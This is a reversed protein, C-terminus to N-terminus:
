EPRRFTWKFYHSNNNNDFRSRHSSSLDTVVEDDPFEFPEIPPDSDSTAPASSTTTLLLRPLGPDTTTSTAPVDPDSTLLAPQTFPTSTIDPVPNTGSGGEPSTLINNGVPGSTLGSSSSVASSDGDVLEAPNIPGGPTTTSVVSGGSTPLLTQLGLGGTPATVTVTLTDFVIVTGTGGIETPLLTLTTPDAGTTTSTITIFRDDTGTEPPIFLRGFPDLPRNSSGTIGASGPTTAPNLILRTAITLTGTEAPPITITTPDTGTGTGTIDIFLRPSPAPDSEGGETTPRLLIRTGISDDGGAPPLDVTSLATGTWVGTMTTFSRALPPDTPASPDIPTLVLETGITDTGRAPLTITTPVMGTWPQTVATLSGTFPESAPTLLIRTGVEDSRRPPLLVTNTVSGTWPATIVILSRPFATEGGLGPASPGSDYVSPTTSVGWPIILRTQIPNFPGQWDSPLPQLVIQTGLDSGDQPDLTITSTSSGQPVGRTITTFLGNFPTIPSLTSTLTITNEVIFDTLLVTPANTVPVTTGAVSITTNSCIAASLHVPIRDIVVIHQKPLNGNEDPFVCEANGVGVWLLLSLVCTWLLSQM